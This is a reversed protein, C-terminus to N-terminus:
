ERKLFELVRANFDKAEEYAAHGLNEYLYLECGLQDALERSAEAISGKAEAMRVAEQKFELTYKARIAKKLM